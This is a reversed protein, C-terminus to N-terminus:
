WGFYELLRFLVMGDNTLVYRKETRMGRQTIMFGSLVSAKIIRRTLFYSIDSDIAIQMMNPRDLFLVSKLVLYLDRSYFNKIM